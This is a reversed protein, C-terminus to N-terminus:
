HDRLNKVRPQPGNKVVPLVIRDFMKARNTNPNSEVFDVVSMTSSMNLGLKTALTRNYWPVRFLLVSPFPANDGSAHNVVTSIPPYMLKRAKFEFSELITLAKRDHPEISDTSFSVAGIVLTLSTIVLVFILAEYIVTVVSKTLTKM